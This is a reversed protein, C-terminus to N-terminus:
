ARPLSSQATISYSSVMVARLMCLVNVNSVESGCPSGCPRGRDWIYRRAPLSLMSVRVKLRARGKCRSRAAEQSLSTVRRPCAHRPARSGLWQPLRCATRDQIHAGTAVALAVATALVLRHMAAASTRLCRSATDRWPHTPNGRRSKGCPLRVMSTSLYSSPPPHLAPRPPPSANIRGPREQHRRRAGACGGRSETWGTKRAQPPRPRQQPLPQALSPAATCKRIRGCSCRRAHMCAACRLAPERVRGSYGSGVSSTPRPAGQGSSGGRRPRAGASCHCHSCANRGHAPPVGGGGRRRRLAPTSRRPAAREAPMKACPTRRRQMRAAVLRILEAWAHRKHRVPACAHASNALRPIRSPM